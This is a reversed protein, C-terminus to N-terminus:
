RIAGGASQITSVLWPAGAIYISSTVIVLIALAAVREPLAGTTAIGGAGVVLLITGLIFGMEFFYAMKKYSNAASQADREADEIEEREEKSVEDDSERAELEIQSAIAKERAVGRSGVSDCGRSLIVLAFGVMLLIKPITLLEGPSNLAKMFSGEKYGVNSSQNQDSAAATAAPVSGEGVEEATFSQDCNKCRVLRGAFEDSVNWAHNCQPCRTKM